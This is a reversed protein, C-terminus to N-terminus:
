GMSKLAQDTNEAMQVAEQNARSFAIYYPKNHEVPPWLTVLRDSEDIISLYSQLASEEVIATKLEGSLVKKLTGKITPTSDDIKINHEKLAVKLSGGYPIGIPQPLTSIDGNWQLKQANERTVVVWFSCRGLPTEPYILIEDREATRSLSYLGDFKQEAVQKLCEPWTRHHLELEWDLRQAVRKVIDTYIGSINDQKDKTIYPEREGTTCLRVVQKSLAQDVVLFFHLLAIVFIQV